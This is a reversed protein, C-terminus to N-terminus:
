TPLVALLGAIARHAPNQLLVALGLAVPLAAAAAGFMLFRRKALARDQPGLAFSVSGLVPLGTVERLERRSVFVPNIHQLAFALVCAAAVAALATLTLFLQRNPGVPVLSARPPDIVRFQLQDGTQEVEGTMHLSERRKLLLEYQDRTVEYDRNMATLQREIEPITDVLKQLEQVAADEAQLKSRLTAIEVETESLGMRMRQYVPNADLPGAAFRGAGGVPAAAARSQQQTKLRDITQRLAVVDPHSETYKLLLTNIENEYQAITTDTTSDAVADGRPAVIGFAPEEGALQQQYEIRRQEALRLNARTEAATQMSRQLRTYYDGTEGPMLGINDRKFAALRTEADNLRKEYDLIQQEVFAEANGSDTRRGAQADEVFSDYLTKVVTEATQRNSDEFSIRFINEGGEKALKVRTALEAILREHQEPTTVTLDLNALRAM